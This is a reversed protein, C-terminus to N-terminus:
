PAPAHCANYCPRKAKSRLARFVERASRGHLRHAAQRAQAPGAFRPRRPPTGGALQQAALRQELAALRDAPAKRDALLERRQVFARVVYVSMELARNSNLVGAAMIADHETFAQPSLSGRTEAAIASRSRPTDARGM